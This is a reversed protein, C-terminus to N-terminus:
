LVSISRGLKHEKWEWGLAPEVALWTLYCYWMRGTCSTRCSGPDVWNGSNGAQTLSWCRPASLVWWFHSQPTHSLGAGLWGSELFVIINVLFRTNWKCALYSRVNFKVYIKLWESLM